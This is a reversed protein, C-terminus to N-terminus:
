WNEKPDKKRMVRRMDKDKTLGRKKERLSACLTEFKTKCKNFDELKPLEQRQFDSRNHMLGKESIEGHLAVIDLALDRDFVVEELNQVRVHDDYRQITGAFLLEEIVCECSSRLYDFANALAREQAEFDLGEYNQVAKKYKEQLNALNAMKPSTNENVRGAGLASRDVVHSIFNLNTDKAHKVLQSAFLLDHTFVVVQRNKAIQVLRKGLHNRVQHDLSNVPDDFVVPSQANTNDLESFFLALGVAKKEGESLVDNVDHGLINLRTRVIGKDAKVKQLQVDMSRGLEKLETEFTKRLKETLLEDHAKAGLDTIGKTRIDSKIQECKEVFENVKFCKHLRSSWESINKKDELQNIRSVLEAIKKNKEDASAGFEAVIKQKHAIINELKSVPLSVDLKFDGCVTNKKRVVNLLATKQKEAKLFVEDIVKKLSLKDCKIEALIDVTEQGAAFDTEIDLEDAYGGLVDEAEKFEDQSQDNLYQTYAQVLSLANASLPQRCYLCVKSTSSKAIDAVESYEGAAEIFSQWEETDHAPISKLIEFQKKREERIKKKNVYDKAAIGIESTLRETLEKLNQLQEKLKQFTKREQIAIKKADEVNQKELSNKREVFDKLSKKDQETFASYKGLVTLDEQTLGSKELIAKPGNSHLLDVLPALDVSECAKSEQLKELRDKFDDVVAVLVHFLNLGLPEINVVNERVDLLIPLYESDFVRIQSFPVVGRDGADRWKYTQQLKGDLSYEVDVEIGDECDTRIDGLILKTKEAGALENVIRFYGSKGAGNLGYIMTLQPNFVLAQNPLLANVGKTHIIKELRFCSGCSKNVKKRQAPSAPTHKPTIKESLSTLGNEALLKEFIKHKDQEEIDGKAEIVRQILEKLWNQLSKKDKYELLYDKAHTKGM